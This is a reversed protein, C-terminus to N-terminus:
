RESISKPKSILGGSVGFCKTKKLLIYDYDTWGERVLIRAFTKRSKQISSTITLELRNRTAFDLMDDHVDILAYIAARGKLTTHYMVLTLAKLDSYLSAPRVDASIWGVVENNEELIRFYKCTRHLMMINQKCVGIDISFEPIIDKMHLKESLAVCDM